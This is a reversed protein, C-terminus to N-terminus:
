KKSKKSKKHQMRHGVSVLYDTGMLYATPTIEIPKGSCQKYATTRAEQAYRATFGLGPIKSVEVWDLEGNRRVLNNLGLASALKGLNSRQVWPIYEAKSARRAGARIIPRHGVLVYRIALIWQTFNMRRPNTESESVGYKLFLVPPLMYLLMNGKTPAGILLFLFFVWAPIIVLALILDKRRPGEGLDLGLMEHQRTEIKLQKTVTRGIRM